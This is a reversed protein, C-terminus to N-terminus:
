TSLWCFTPYIILVSSLIRYHFRWRCKKVDSSMPDMTSPQTKETFDIIKIKLNALPHIFSVSIVTLCFSAFSVSSPFYRVRFKACFFWELQLIRVDADDEDNQQAISHWYQYQYWVWVGYNRHCLVLAEHQSRRGRMVNPRSDSKRPSLDEIDHSAGIHTSDTDCGSLQFRFVIDVSCWKRYNYERLKM